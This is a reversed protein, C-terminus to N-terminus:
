RYMMFISKKPYGMKESKKCKKLFGNKTMKEGGGFDQNRSKVVLNGSSIRIKEQSNTVHWFTDFFINPRQYSFEQRKKSGKKLGFDDNKVM